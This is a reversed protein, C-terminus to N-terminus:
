DLDKLCRVSIALGAGVGNGRKIRVQDSDVNRFFHQVNDSSWFFGKWEPGWYEGQVIYGGPLASFGFADTAGTNPPYWYESSTSKLNGGADSGRWDTNNWESNGIGYVSDVAGELIQWDLDSPIHWGEPCIGQVEPEITYNMMENWKYLAGAFTNCYYEDDLPCYKEIINNNTQSQSTPIMEGVNLNEKFWCQNYIQITHYTHGEYDVTPAGVCPINTAFQFTYTKSEEPSDLLGSEGLDNYSVFLIEDGLEFPFDKSQEESKFYDNASKNGIYEIKCGRKLDSTCFMKISKTVGYATASLLYVSEGGSLFSFQHTGKLVSKQYHAVRQGLLTFVEVKLKGDKDMFIDLETKDKFPNPSNQSLNFFSSQNASLENLGVILLNITSDPAYLMISAEQTLNKIYLSDLTVDEGNNDGSFTIALNQGNLNLNLTGVIVSLVLLAKKM